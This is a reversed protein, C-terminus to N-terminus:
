FDCSLADFNPILYHLVYSVPNFALALAAMQNPHAAKKHGKAREEALISAM